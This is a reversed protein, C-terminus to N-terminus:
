PGFLMSGLNGWTWQSKHSDTVPIRISTNHLSCPSLLSLYNISFQPFETLSHCMEVLRSLSRWFASATTPNWLMMSARLIVRMGTFWTCSHLNWRLKNMDLADYLYYVNVSATLKHYIYVMSNQWIYWATQISHKRWTLQGTATHSTIELGKLINFQICVSQTNYPRQIAPQRANAKSISEV